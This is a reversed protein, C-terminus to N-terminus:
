AYVRAIEPTQPIELLVGAKAKEAAIAKKFLAVVEAHSHTDNFEALPGGAYEGRPVGAAEAAEQMPISALTATACNPTAASIAMLACRTVRGDGAGFPGDSCWNKEDEILALAEYTKM